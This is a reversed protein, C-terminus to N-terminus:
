GDELYSQIHFGRLNQMQVSKIKSREKEKWSMTESGNMLTPVLLTDHLVIVSLSYDGLM